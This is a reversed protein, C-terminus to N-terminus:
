LYMVLQYLFVVSHHLVVVVQEFVQFSWRGGHLALTGMQSM